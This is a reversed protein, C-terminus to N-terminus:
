LSAESPPNKEDREGRARPGWGGTPGAARVAAGRYGFTRVATM